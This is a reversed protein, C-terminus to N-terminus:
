IGARPQGRDLRQGSAQIKIDVVAQGRHDLWVAVAAVPFGIRAHAGGRLGRDTLDVLPATEIGADLRQQKSQALARHQHQRRDSQRDGEAHHPDDVHRMALQYHEAGITEPSAPMAISRPM